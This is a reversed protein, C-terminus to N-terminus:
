WSGEPPEPMGTVESRQVAALGAVPAV